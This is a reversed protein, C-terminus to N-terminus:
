LVDAYARQAPLRLIQAVSNIGLAILLLILGLSLAVAFEGGSTEVAIATTMTRTYMKINGGVMMAIGLESCLRGFAAMTAAILPTKAERLITFFIKIKGAGLTKATIELRPDLGSVASSLMAVVIPFGLIFEGLIIAWPTYLIGLAGLPGSRSLLSYAVLGIVVTPIAMGTHAAILLGKRFPFRRRGLLVAMPAGALVALVTATVSCLLSVRICDLLNADLTWFLSAIKGLIETM